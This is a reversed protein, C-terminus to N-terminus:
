QFPCNKMLLPNAMGGYMANNAWPSYINEEPNIYGYQNYEPSEPYYSMNAMGTNETMDYVEPYLNENGFEEPTTIENPYPVPNANAHYEMRMNINGHYGPNMGSSGEMQHPCYPCQNRVPCTSRYPCRPGYAYGMGPGIDYGNM